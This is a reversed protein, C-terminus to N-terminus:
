LLLLVFMFFIFLKLQIHFKNNSKTKFIQFTIFKNLHMGYKGIPYTRTSKGEKTLGEKTCCFKKLKIVGDGSKTKM